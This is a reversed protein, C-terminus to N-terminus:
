SCRRFSGQTERFHSCSSSSSYSSCRCVSGRGADPSRGTVHAPPSYAEYVSISEAYLQREEDTGDPNASRYDLRTYFEEIVLNAVDEASIRYQFLLSQIGRNVPCDVGYPHQDEPLEVLADNYDIPPTISM